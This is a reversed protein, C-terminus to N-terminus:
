VKELIHKPLSKVPALEVALGKRAEIAATGLKAMIIMHHDFRQRGEDNLRDRPVLATRRFARRTKRIGQKFNNEGVNLRDAPNLIKLGEGRMWESDIGLSNLLYKRWSTIIGTYRQRDRKENIIGELEDHSILMDEEPKPYKDKLKNVQPGYPIGSLWYRTGQKESAEM